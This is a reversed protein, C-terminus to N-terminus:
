QLNRWAIADAAGVKSQECGTTWNTVVYVTPGGVSMRWVMKSITLAMLPIAETWAVGGKAKSFARPVSTLHSAEMLAMSTSM